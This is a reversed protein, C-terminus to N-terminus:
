TEIKKCMQPSKVFGTPASKPNSITSFFCKWWKDIKPGVKHLERTRFFNGIVATVTVPVTAIWRVGLAYLARCKKKTSQAISFRM